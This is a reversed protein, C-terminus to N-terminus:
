DATCDRPDPLKLCEAIWQQREGLWQKLLALENQFSSRPGYYSWRAFNRTVADADLQAALEDIRAAVAAVSLPGALLEQWREWYRATFAPDSFLGRYFGVDFVASADSTDSADWGLPSAARVDSSCGMTRDLDWLPGAFVKGERDKHMFASLRFADPNKALVNLIHHDVFSGVDILEDYPLRTQPHVFDEAALAEAAEDLFSSLYARQQPAVELENPDDFIFPQEFDFAGGATGAVFGEEGVDLRDVKWLYGGTLPAGAIDTPKVRSIPVRQPDPKIKEVVEYVGVYHAMSVSAGDGVVFLEAHRSRPAYRGIDNSLAFALSNRMLARDFELPALLIWDSQRPMGLVSVKDDDDRLPGWTELKYPRKPFKASSSGRLRIGARTSSTASGPWRNLGDTASSAADFTILSFSAYEDVKSMPAPDVASWLLAIPMRSAFEAVDAELEVYPFYGVARTIGREDVAVARVGTSRSLLLEGCEPSTAAPLSGDVTCRVSLGPVDTSLALEVKVAGVFTGPAPTAVLEPPAPTPETGTGGDSDPLVAGGLGGDSVGPKPLEGGQNFGGEGAPPELLAGGDGAGGAHEPPRLEGRTDAGGGCATAVGLVFVCSGWLWDRLSAM